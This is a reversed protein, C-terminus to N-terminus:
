VSATANVPLEFWFTSGEGEKSVVGITGGFKEVLLKSIYLGLGTGITKGVKAEVRYFKQFLKKQEERSIGAGTDKVEVRVRGPERNIVSITVTGKETYKVANSVFNVIVEHLKDEDVFVLDKTGEPIVLKYELARREAEVKFEDYVGQATVGIHVDEEQYVMRGEEIRSVNLMNNVLRIMRETSVATDNLFGKAQDSIPGTDGGIVMSLFGKIATLPARLEHAAMNIFEDKKNDLAQLAKTLTALKEKQEVEIRVSRIVLIGFFVTLLFIGLDIVTQTLSGPYLFIRVLLTVWTGFTLIETAFVKIDFLKHRLIAFTTAALLFTTSYDGIFYLNTIHMFVPLIINFIANLIYFVFVGVMFASVAQNREAKWFSAITAIITAMVVLLYPYFLPGYVIDLVDNTFKFTSVVWPSFAAALSILVVSTFLITSIKKFREAKKLFHVSIRYTLYFLFPTAFWAFRLMVLAFFASNGFIRAVYAGDVWAIMALSMLLFLRESTGRKKSHNVVTIVLLGVTFNIIIIALKNFLPFPLERIAPIISLDFINM